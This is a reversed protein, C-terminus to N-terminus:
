TFGHGIEPTLSGLQRLSAASTSTIALPSPSVRWSMAPDRPAPFWGLWPGTLRQAPYGSARAVRGSSAALM